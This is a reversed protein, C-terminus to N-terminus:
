IPILAKCRAISHYCCCLSYHLPTPEDPLCRALKEKEWGWTLAEAGREHLDVYQSISNVLALSAEDLMKSVSKARTLPKEHSRIGEASYGSAPLIKDPPVWKGGYLWYKAQHPEYSSWHTSDPPEGTRRRPAM